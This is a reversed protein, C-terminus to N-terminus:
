ISKNKYMRACQKFPAQLEAAVTALIITFCLVTTLQSLAM